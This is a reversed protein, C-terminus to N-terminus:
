TEISKQAPVHLSEKTPLPSSIQAGFQTSVNCVFPTDDDIQDFKLWVYDYWGASDPWIEIMCSWVMRCELMFGPFAQFCSKLGDVCVASLENAM